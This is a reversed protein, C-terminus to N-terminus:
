AATSTLSKPEWLVGEGRGDGAFRVICNKQHRNLSKITDHLRRKPNMESVPPLPDDIRPPWGEEEFASLIMEQNPSPLKYQKVLTGGLSLQRRDRDWLPSVHYSRGFMSVEGEIAPRSEYSDGGPRASNAAAFTLDEDNLLDNALEMGQATLVFCTRPTFTLRDISRFARRKRRSSNIEDAHKVYGMCALWRLDNISLGTACLNPLELAFDWADRKLRQAYIQAQVLVALVPRIGDPIEVRARGGMISQADWDQGARLPAGIADASQESM